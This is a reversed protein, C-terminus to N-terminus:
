WHSSCHSLAVSSKTLTVSFLAPVPAFRQAAGDSLLPAAGRPFSHIPFPAPERRELPKIGEGTRSLVIVSWQLTVSPDTVSTCRTVPPSPAVPSSGVNPDVNM